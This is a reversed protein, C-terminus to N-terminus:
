GLILLLVKSVISLAENPDGRRQWSFQRSFVVTRRSRFCDPIVDTSTELLGSGIKDMSGKGSDYHASRPEGYRRLNQPLMLLYNLIGIPQSNLAASMNNAFSIEIVLEQSELFIRTHWNKTNM